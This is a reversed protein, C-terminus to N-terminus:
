LSRLSQLETRLDRVSAARVREHLPFSREGAHVVHLHALQLDDLATLMSRTLAPTSTRKFEFGLRTPGRVVLLDLEAGGHTAWFFCEEPLAGLRAITAEVAFGEWSAGVKPHSTLQRESGLGLLAHLLGSDRVYVKPAKVQRKALNEHWAPLQRVMFTGALVDLYRQVTTHAVGFARAFESSNWVQGHYHALMTWFRRLTTAPLRLGLLPVDRELYTRILERRWALSEADTRALYARPFSGRLWLRPWARASIEDLGFGGLEHFAIRGALTESTQRLFDPAASGLLLFRRRSGPEDALVRLTPFLDPRRQVEDVVVLGRLPRLALLPDAPLALDEASELDFVTVPGRQTAALQRALTTKGVQRAGLIAVVPFQRLLTRVRQRHHRRAIM